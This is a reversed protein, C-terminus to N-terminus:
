LSECQTLKVLCFRMISHPLMILIKFFYTLGVRILYQVMETNGKCAAWFIPRTNNVDLPSVDAGANKLTKVVEINGGIVVLFLPTM